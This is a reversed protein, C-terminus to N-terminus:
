TEEHCSIGSGIVSQVTTPVGGRVDPVVQEVALQEGEYTIDVRSQASNLQLIKKRGVLIPVIDLIRSLSTALPLAIGLVLIGDHQVCVHSQGIVQVHRITQSNLVLHTARKTGGIGVKTAIGRRHGHRGGAISGAAKRVAVGLPQVM